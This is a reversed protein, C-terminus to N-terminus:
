NRHDVRNLKEIPRCTTGPWSQISRNAGRELRVVQFARYVNIPPLLLIVIALPLFFLFPLFALFDLVLSRAAFFFDAFFDEFFDAALDALFALFDAFFVAFLDALFDLAADGFFDALFALALLGAFFFAALDAAALGEAEFDAAGLAADVGVGAGSGAAWLQAEGLGASDFEAGEHPESAEDLGEDDFPSSSSYRIAGRSCQTL